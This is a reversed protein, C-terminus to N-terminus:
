STKKINRKFDEFSGSVWDIDFLIKIMSKMFEFMENLIREQLFREYTKKNITPWNIITDFIIEDGQYNYNIIDYHAIKDRLDKLLKGWKDDAFVENKFISKIKIAKYQFSEDIRNELIKYFDDTGNQNLRTSKLILCCFREFIDLFARAEFLASELFASGLIKNSDNWEHKIISNEISLYIEQRNFESQKWLVELFIVTLSFKFLLAKQCKILKQVEKDSYLTCNRKIYIDLAYEYKQSINNIQLKNASKLIENFNIIM